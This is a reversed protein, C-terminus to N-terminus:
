AWAWADPSRPASRWGGAAIGLVSADDGVQGALMDALMAGADSRDDFLGTQERLEAIDRIKVASRDNM